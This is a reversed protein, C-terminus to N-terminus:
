KRLFGVLARIQPCLLFAHAAVSSSGEMWNIPGDLIPAAPSNAHNLEFCLITVNNAKEVMKGPIEYAGLLTSYWNLMSKPIHVTTSVTSQTPGCAPLFKAVEQKRHVCLVSGHM